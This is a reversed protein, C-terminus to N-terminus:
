MSLLEKEKSDALEDIQKMLTEVEREIEDKSRKVDDESVGGASVSADVGDMMKHRVGRISVRAEEVRGKMDKVYQERLEATPAPLSLRILKGDVVPTIGIDSAMLAKEVAKVVSEDWPQIAITRADPVSISALHSIPMKSDYADVTIEEVMNPNARGARIKSLDGRLAEVAQEMQRAGESIDM